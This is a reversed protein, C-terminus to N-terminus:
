EGIYQKILEVVQKTATGNETVQLTEENFKRLQEKYNVPNFNKINEELEEQTFAHPYPLEDLEMYVGRSEKYQEFDDAFLFVPKDLFGMEFSLSSYDSILVDAEVLLEYVDEWKTVNKVFDNEIISTEKAHPHLKVLIYVEEGFREKFCKRLKELEIVLNNKGQLGSKTTARYTPAYLVIKATNSIHLADRVKSFSKNSFCQDLRPSGCELVKGEYKMASRYMETCFKSNSIRIDILKSDHITREVFKQPVNHIDLDLKKLSVCGHWTNIYKQSKKKRIWLEKKFVDIWVKSTSHAIIKSIVDSKLLTVEKPYKSDQDPYMWLIECDVNEEILKDVIAKPHDNYKKFGNTILIRNKKVPLLKWLVFNIIGAVIRLIINRSELVALGFYNYFDLEELQTAIEEMYSTTTILIVINEKQLSEIEKPNLVKYDEFSNGWKAPSNDFVGKINVKNKWKKVFVRCAKGTGFLYLDANTTAKKFNRWTGEKLIKNDTVYDKTLICDLLEFM